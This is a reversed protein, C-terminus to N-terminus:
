APHVVLVPEANERRRAAASALGAKKKQTLWDEIVQWEERVRKNALRPGGKTLRETFKTLIAKKNELWEQKSDADAILWLEEDDAALYPRKDGFYCYMLFNRYFARQRSTMRRVALDAQFDDEYWHIFIPKFDSSNNKM